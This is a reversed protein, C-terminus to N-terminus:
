NEEDSSLFQVGLDDVKTKSGTISYYFSVEDESCEGLV